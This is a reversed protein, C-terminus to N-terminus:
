LGNVPFWTMAEMEVRGLHLKSIPKAKWTSKPLVFYVWKHFIPCISIGHAYPYGTPMYTQPRTTELKLDILECSIGGQRPKQCSRANQIYRHAYPAHGDKPMYTQPQAYITASNLNADTTTRIVNYCCILVCMRSCVPGLRM